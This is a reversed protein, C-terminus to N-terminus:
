FGKRFRVQVLLTSILVVTVSSIPMLVAAVIPSLAGTTAFSLGIINYTISFGLCVKLVFKSFSVGNFFNPLKTLQKADLIADSSPTFRFM